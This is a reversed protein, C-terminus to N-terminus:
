KCYKAILVGGVVAAGCLVLAGLPSMGFVFGLAYIAATFGGGAVNELDEETLEEAHSKKIADVLEEGTIEVGYSKCLEIAAELTEVKSAAKKFEENMVLEKIEM